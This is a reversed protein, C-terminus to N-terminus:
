QLPEPEPPWLVPQMGPSASGSEGRGLQGFTNDGECVVQDDGVVVCLVLEAAAVLRAGSVGPVDGYPIAARFKEVMIEYGGDSAPVPAGAEDREVEDITVGDVRITGDPRLGVVYQGDRVGSSGDFDDWPTAFIQISGNLDNLETARIPTAGPGFGFTFVTGNQLLAFAAYDGMAVQAVGNLPIDRVAPMYDAFQIGNPQV